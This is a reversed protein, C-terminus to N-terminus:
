YPGIRRYASALDTQDAPARAQVNLREAAAPLAGVPESGGCLAARHIELVRRNWANIPSDPLGISIAQSHTFAERAARLGGGVRHELV